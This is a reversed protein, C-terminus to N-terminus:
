EVGLRVVAVKEAVVVGARGLSQRTFESDAMLGDARRLGALALRDFRAELRHGYVRLEPDDRLLWPIIDHVTVVTPGPPRRWLLLTALNQGALHYIDAPPYRALLPYNDLFAAVDWGTLRRVLRLLAEPLPLVPHVILVEHGQAELAERLHATYRGIGSHERGPKAILAIRM